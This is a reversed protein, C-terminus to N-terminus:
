NFRKEYTKKQTKNAAYRDAEFETANTHGDKEYKSKIKEFLKNREQRTLNDATKHKLYEGIKLEENIQKMFERRTDEDVKGLDDGTLQQFMSQALGNVNKESIFDKNLMNSKPNLGHMKTHGIEHQLIAERRKDNKLKFFERGLFIEPKDSYVNAATQRPTVSGNVNMTKSNNMDVKVRKGDVEITGTKKDFNHKDKFRERSYEERTKKEIFLYDESVAELLVDREEESIRGEECREYCSLKYLDVSNM